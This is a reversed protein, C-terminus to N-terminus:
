HLVIWEVYQWGGDTGSDRERIWCGRYTYSRGAPPDLSKEKPSPM